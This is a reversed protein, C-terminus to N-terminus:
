LKEAELYEDYESYIWLIQWKSGNHHIGGNPLHICFGLKGIRGVIGTRKQKPHFKYPYYFWDLRLKM